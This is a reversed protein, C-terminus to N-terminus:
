KFFETMYNDILDDIQEILDDMCIPLIYIAKNDVVQKEVSCEHCHNAGHDTEIDEEEFTFYIPTFTNSAFKNNSVDSVYKSNTDVDVFVLGSTGLYKGNEECFAKEFGMYIDEGDNTLTLYYEREYDPDVDIFDLDIGERVFDMVMELVVDYNSVVSVSENTKLNDMVIDELHELCEVKITRDKM